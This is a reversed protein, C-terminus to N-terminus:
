VRQRRRVGSAAVLGVVALALTAPEPIAIIRLGYRTTASTQFFDSAPPLAVDIITFPPAGESALFSPGIDNPANRPLFAGDDGDVASYVMYYTGAALNLNVPAAVWDGASPSTGPPLLSFSTIVDGLVTGTGISTSLHVDIPDSGNGGLYTEISVVNAPSALSFEQAVFQAGPLTSDVFVSSNSVQDPTGSDVITILAHTPVAAGLCFAVALLNATILKSNM